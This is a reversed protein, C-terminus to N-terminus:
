QFLYSTNLLTKSSSTHTYQLNIIYLLVCNLSLFPSGPSTNFRFLTPTSGFSGSKKKKKVCVVFLFCFTVYIEGLSLLKVVLHEM